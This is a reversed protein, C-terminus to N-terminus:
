IVTMTIFAKVQNDEVAPNNPVPPNPTPTLLVTGMGFLPFSIFFTSLPIALKQRLVLTVATRLYCEINGELEDPKIDVIEIGDVKSLLTQQGAIFAREVHGVVFVDICFCKLRGRLQIPPLREPVHTTIRSPTPEVPIADLDKPDPCAIAGCVRFHLALRQSQLPPNLQPPLSIVNGPHFDIEAKTLQVCFGLTVPPSDTGLVPLPPMVTFLPNGYKTVDDTHKVFSCWLEQNAAVDATAYNFLSPRQRMLHGIVRNVGDEHVAGYLDCNDTFAM